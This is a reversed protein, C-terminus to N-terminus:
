GLWPTQRVRPQQARTTGRGRQLPPKRYQHRQPCAQECQSRRRLQRRRPLRLERQRHGAREMLLALNTALFAGGQFPLERDMAGVAAGM